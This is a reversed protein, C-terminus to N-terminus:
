WIRHKIEDDIIMLLVVELGEEAILKKLKEMRREQREKKEAAEREQKADSVMESYYHGM